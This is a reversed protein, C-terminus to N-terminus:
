YEQLARINDINLFLRDDIGKACAMAATITTIYPIGYKIAAKRIYSDDTSSRKGSPTNIIMQLENNKIADEINPRGEFLKNIIEAKVGKSTIFTHTGRTAKIKFGLKEFYKMVPVCAERDSDNVSVLITGSLPLVTGEGELAKYFALGFTEALGLVSGTSRMEPGLLPDVQPFMNFPFVAEKVGFHEIVPAKMASVDPSEGTLQAMILKTANKILDFNCVKQVLPVTRSARPNAELVMVKGNEIAFQMNMLGTAGIREAIKTTYQQMLELQAPSINVPPIVCASDGSHIGAYEIHEMVTPIFAKGGGVLADVECELANELFRDIMIPGNPNILTANIVYNKLMEEDRVVEIAKGSLELALRVLVPYGIKEAIKIAEELDKANGSEPTPINMESMLKRFGDRDKVIDFVEPSSGIINIGANKLGQAINLPTYGGFQVIVGLPKQANCISIVAEMTLPDIFLKDSIGFDTSLAGPNCNIMIPEFGMSKLAKAAHVCCYDFEIGQGIRNPGGGLIVVSKSSVKPGVESTLYSSYYYEEEINVKNKVTGWGPLIGKAIRLGMIEEHSGSTLKALYKDSFGDKKARALLEVPIDTVKFKQVEKELDVLESIQNLYWANIKTLQQVEEITAGKVFAEYIAFIRESTPTALTQLIDAKELTMLKSVHGIGHRGIELSRIAKQLAEKFSMGIGIVEGVSHMQTDLKDQAGKFKEFAWRPAKVVINQEKNKSINIEELSIGVALQTSIKAIQLGTAKSAFASTMSTHPNIEVMVLRGTTLNHAFQLNLCGIIKLSDSIAFSLKEIKNQLEQSVTLMPTVCFSDGTHIGMPDINEIFCATLKNGDVDRLVELELENWGLVSEEVFVQGVMSSQIGRNVVTTLEEANYAIGGGIGGIAYAPRIVVPYGIEQAIEAAEDTSFADKSLPMEIGLGSMANKFAIRDEAIEIAEIRTGILKVGYKDLIGSNFLEASLNISTQGGVNPLLADPREKSIIDTLRKINLPEVYTVTATELDTMISAPNSNVLVTEYGIEKLVNCAQTASLDSESGQGIVVPGAGIILIKKIDVKKPM